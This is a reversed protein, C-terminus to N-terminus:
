IADIKYSKADERVTDIENQKSYVCGYLNFKLIFKTPFTWFRPHLKESSLWYIRSMKSGAWKLDLFPTTLFLLNPYFISEMLHTLFIFAQTTSDLFVWRNM